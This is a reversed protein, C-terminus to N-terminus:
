ARSPEGSCNRPRGAHLLVEPMYLLRSPKCAENGIMDFLWLWGWVRMVVEGVGGVRRPKLFITVGVEEGHFTVFGRLARRRPEAGGAGM